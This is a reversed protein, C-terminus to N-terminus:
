LDATMRLVTASTKRGDNKSSALAQSHRENGQEDLEAARESKEEVSTAGRGRAAAPPRHSYPSTSNPKSEKAAIKDHLSQTM